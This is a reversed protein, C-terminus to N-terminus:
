RFMQVAALWLVMRWSGLRMRLRLLLYCSAFYVQTTGQCPKGQCRCQRWGCCWAGAAWVCGCACCCVVHFLLATTTVVGARSVKVDASGGAVAGDALQGFADAPAAAFLQATILAPPPAVALASMVNCSYEADAALQAGGSPSLAKIQLVADAYLLGAGRVVQLSPCCNLQL